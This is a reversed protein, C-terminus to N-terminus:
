ARNRAVPAVWWASRFRSSSGPTVVPTSAAHRCCCESTASSTRRPRIRLVGHPKFIDTDEDYFLKFGMHFTDSREVTRYTALKQSRTGFGDVHQVM